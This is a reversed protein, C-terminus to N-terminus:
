TKTVIHTSICDKCNYEWLVRDHPLNRQNWDKAEDKHFPMSTYVSTLFGLDHRADPHILQHAYMTDFLPERPFGLLPLLYHLEYHQNQAIKVLRPKEYIKRMAYIIDLQEKEGWRNQLGRHRFPICIVESPSKTWGICTIRQKAITEIDYCTETSNEHIDHLFNITQSFTPDIIQTWQTPKPKTSLGLGTKAFREIDHRVYPFLEMQGRALYSPHLTIVVPIDLTGFVPKLQVTSGRWKLVGECSTLTEMAYRGMALIVKPQVCLIEEKILPIFDELSLNLENLREVKNDPPRVKIVNTVHAITRILGVDRLLKDFLKGAKGVFYDGEREEDAGLSEGVIMLNRRPPPNSLDEGGWPIVLQAGANECKSLLLSLETQYTM